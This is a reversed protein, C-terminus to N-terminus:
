KETQLQKKFYEVNPLILFIVILISYNFEGIQLYECKKSIVLAVLILTFPIYTGFFKKLVNNVM